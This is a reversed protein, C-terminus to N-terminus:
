WFPWRGFALLRVIDGEELHLVFSPFELSKIPARQFDPFPYSVNAFLIEVHKNELM